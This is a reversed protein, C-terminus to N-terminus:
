DEEEDKREEPGRPATQPLAKAKRRPHPRWSWPRDGQWGAVTEVRVGGPELWLVYPGRRWLDFRDILVRAGRCTGRLPVSSVVIDAGACAKEPNDEDRVLAVVRGDARWLCGSEDCRLRGDRSSSKKPWREAAEPGARRSWTDKLIRGGKGNLLLAGEATRLAMGEGRGDVLLDPPRAFAMSALAVAMPLVGWWRWTGRWLCLWCGGLTFAVMAWLPLIPLTVASSPWSAVWAAVRNVGEVGWGMPVLALAELGFPLLLFMALAWPMVWFGTLPVAIMNAAVSWVAFRNFHFIGYVATAFGAILTSLVVGLLYLGIAPLPGPHEARWAGQRPTLTEYAAIMAVVAAFSMQFSPGIVEEPAWLMIVLAAWAVLRMSLAMRDLLVAVLVLGTMFFSRQAPVPAGALLTYFGACLIALAAAWKKIPYRLAVAPFLALLARLGVFVLGAAMTIHLGSISLIHALGSDRYAQMMPASIPMQDGTVLAAAVAGRDGPLAELIRSSLAQRIANIAVALGSRWGGAADPEIVAVPGLATGMAGLQRFWAFRAFDFAGPMAPQPPPMLMARVRVRDGVSASSLGARAKIRAKLPVAVDDRDHAVRDLTLRSGGDPLAEVEVVVGDLMLAGTPREVVPAALRLSRGQTVAFGLAVALLCAAAMLLPLSRRRALVLGAGAAAVGGAGWFVPPEAPLAFYLGIGMGLFVPLWLPWRGREALLREGMARLFDAAADSGSRM